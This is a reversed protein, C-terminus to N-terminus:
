LSESCRLFRKGLKQAMFEDAELAQLAEELSTPLVEAGQEQSRLPAKLLWDAM